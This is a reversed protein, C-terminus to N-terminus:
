ANPIAIHVISRDFVRAEVWPLDPRVELAETVIRRGAEDPLEAIRQRHWRAAHPLGRRTLDRRHGLDELLHGLVRPPDRPDVAARPSPIKRFGPTAAAHPFGPETEWAWSQVPAASWSAGRRQHGPQALSRPNGLDLWM